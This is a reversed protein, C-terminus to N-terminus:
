FWNTRLISRETSRRRTVERGVAHGACLEEVRQLRATQVFLPRSEHGGRGGGGSDGTADVYISPFFIARGGRMLMCQKAQTLFYVGTGGGCIMNHMTCEGPM